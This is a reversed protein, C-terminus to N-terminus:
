AEASQAARFETAAQQSAEPSLTRELIPHEKTEENTAHKLVAERFKGFSEDFKPDDVGLSKLNELAQEGEHEEEVREAAITDGGNAQQTLPHVIQQEAAEHAAATKALRDFADSRDAGGAAVANLLSKIQEHAEQVAAVLGNSAVAENATM